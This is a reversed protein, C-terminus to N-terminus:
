GAPPPDGGRDAAVMAKRGAMKHLGTIAKRAADPTLFRLADVKGTRKLWKNLAAEDDGGTLKRWLKRIFDVQRASAMGTRDGFNRKRWTSEFGCRKFYRMVAEFGAADLDKSSEVGGHTKLVARYTDDDLGLQKKALHIVSLQNPTM